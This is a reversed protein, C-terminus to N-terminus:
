ATWKDEVNTSSHSLWAEQFYGIGQHIKKM